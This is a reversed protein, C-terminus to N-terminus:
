IYKEDGVTYTSLNVAFRSKLCMVYVVGIRFDRIVQLQCGQREVCRRKKIGHSISGMIDVGMCEFLMRLCVREDATNTTSYEAKAVMACM